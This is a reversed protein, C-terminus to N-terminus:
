AQKGLEVARTVAAQVADMMTGRVGARDIVQIGRITTGGPSTVEDKLQGTHKGTELVMKASGMVMQAAFKIAMDRPLGQCVGGDALGEIITYVFAPGCGSVGGVADLLHEPVLECMGVSSLLQKIVDGDEKTAGRGLSFASSGCGVLAPTNPASRIIRPNPVIGALNDYLKQCNVGAMVSVFLKSDSCLFTAAQMDDATAAATTSGARVENRWSDVVSPFIHPKVALFVIDVAKIVESNKHSTTAGLQRWLALNKDSPASAFVQSPSVLGDAMFGKALAMAMKGGGIFGIRQPLPTICRHSIMDIDGGGSTAAAAAAAVAQESGGGVATETAVASKTSNM